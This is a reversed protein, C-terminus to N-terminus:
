WKGHESSTSGIMDLSHTRLISSANSAAAPGPASAFDRRNKNSSGLTAPTSAPPSWTVKAYGSLTSPATSATAPALGMRKTVYM